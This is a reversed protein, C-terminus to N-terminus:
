DLDHIKIKKRLTSRSMGLIRAAASQNGKVSELVLELMPAEVERIVLDYLDRIEHGDMHELYRRLSARVHDRLPTATPDPRQISETSETLLSDAGDTFTM